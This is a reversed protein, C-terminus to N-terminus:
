WAMLFASGCIEVSFAVAQNLVQWFQTCNAHYQELVARPFGPSDAFTPRGCTIAFSVARRLVFLLKEVQELVRGIVVHLGADGIRRHHEEGAVAIRAHVRKM